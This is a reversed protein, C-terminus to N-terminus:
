TCLIFKSMTSTIVREFFLHVGTKCNSKALTILPLYCRKFIYNIIMCLFIQVCDYVIFEVFLILCSRVLAGVTKLRIKVFYYHQLILCYEMQLKEKYM